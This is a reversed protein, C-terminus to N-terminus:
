AAAKAAEKAKKRSLRKELDRGLTQLFDPDSVWRFAEVGCQRRTRTDLSTMDYGLAQWLACIKRKQAALPGDPIEYFDSRRQAAKAKYPKGGSGSTFVAGKSALHDIVRALQKETVKGGSISQVGIVEELMARYTEEDLCLQKRGLAIKAKMANAYSM